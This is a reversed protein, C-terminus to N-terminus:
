GPMQTQAHHGTTNKACRLHDRDSRVETTTTSELNLYSARVCSYLSWHFCSSQHCSCGGDFGHQLPPVTQCGAARQQNGFWRTCAGLQQWVISHVRWAASRQHNPSAAPGSAAVSRIEICPCICHLILGSTSGVSLGCERLPPPTISSDSRAARPENGKM